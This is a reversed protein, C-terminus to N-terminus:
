FIEPQDFRYGDRRVLLAQEYSDFVKTVKPLYLSKVIRQAIDDPEILAVQNIGVMAANIQKDNLVNVMGSNILGPMYYVSRIGAAKAERSFAAAFGHFAKKSAVYLSSGSFQADEAVSGVYLITDTLISKLKKTIEVPMLQNIQTVKRMEEDPIKGARLVAGTIAVTHILYDISTHRSQVQQIFTDLAHKNEYNFQILDIDVKYKKLKEHLSKAKKHNSNYHLILSCGRKALQLAICQGLGGTSGTLLAKKGRLDNNIDIKSKQKKITQAEQPVLYTFAGNEGGLGATSTLIKMSKDLAKNQKLISFAVPVSAGSLNGHKYQIDQYVKQHPLKLQAVSGHVIANGTQHPIFLSVDDVNWGAHHLVTKCNRVINITARDKVIGPTMYLDGYKNAGLHNIMRMDEHNVVSLVGAKESAIQRSLVVAAAGDGFTVFPVFDTKRTLLGSMIETHAILIHQAQKNCRFYEIARQLNINFGVCASTLTSTLSRNDFKTFYCKIFSAMGPAQEHPTGSSMLWLDIDEPHVSADHFAAKTARIALDLTSESTHLKEKTPPFPVVHNRTRFGMKQEAFYSFPTTETHKESYRIYDDNQEIRQANFGTLFGRDIASELEKNTIIYSGLAHGIGSFIYNEIM